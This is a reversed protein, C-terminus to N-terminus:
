QPGQMGETEDIGESEQEEAPDPNEPNQDTNQADPNDEEAESTVGTLGELLSNFDRTEPPQELDKEIGAEQDPEGGATATISEEGEAGICDLVWVDYIGHDMPSLGPSSAFMWGSFVWEPETEEKGEKSVNEWIQLFAAAEPQEVPSSKQCSQVKIYLSGFKLTSGVDAEFTMTRATTKELTRLKIRPQETMERAFADATFTFLCIGIGLFGLLARVKAMSSAARIAM